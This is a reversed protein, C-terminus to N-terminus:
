MSWRSDSAGYSATGINRVDLKFYDGDASQTSLLPGILKASRVQLAGRQESYPLRSAALYQHANPLFTSLQGYVLTFQWIAVRKDFVYPMDAANAKMKVTLSSALVFTKSGQPELRQTHM